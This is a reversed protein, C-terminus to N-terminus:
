NAVPKGGQTDAAKVWKQRGSKDFCYFWGNKDGVFWSDETIVPTTTIDGKIDALPYARLDGNGTRFVTIQAGNAVFVRGGQVVPAINLVPALVRKAWRVKGTDQNLCNLEMGQTLAYIFGGQIAVPMSV